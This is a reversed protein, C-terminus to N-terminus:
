RSSTSSGTASAIGKAQALGQNIADDGLKGATRVDIAGEWLPAIAPGLNRIWYNTGPLRYVNKSYNPIDLILKRHAPKGDPPMFLDSEAVSKLAPTGTQTFLKMGDPGMQYQLLEWSEDPHKIKSFISLMDSAAYTWRSNAGAPGIPVPVIDWEFEKVLGVYVDLNWSGGVEMAWNGNAFGNKINKKEANNPQAHYKVVFDELWNMATQDPTSELAGATRDANMFDGGASYLFANINNTGAAAGNIGWQPTTANAHTLKQAAQLMADWTWAATPEPVDDKQFLTKNYYVITGVNSAPMAYSTGAGPTLTGPKYRGDNMPETYYQGVDFKDRAIYPDLALLYGRDAFLVLYGPSMGCMDFPDGALWETELKQYTAQLVDTTLEVKINPHQATFGDFQQKLIVPWPDSTYMAYRLTVAAGQPASPAAAVSSNTTRAASPVATAAASGVTSSTVVPGGTGASAGGCAALAGIGVVSAAAAALALLARRSIRPSSRRTM